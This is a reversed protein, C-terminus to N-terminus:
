VINLGSRIIFFSKQQFIQQVTLLLKLNELVDEVHFNSKEKKKLHFLM